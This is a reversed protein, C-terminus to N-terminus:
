HMAGYASKLQQLTPLLARCAADLEKLMALTDRQATVESLIARAEAESVTYGAQTLARKLEAAKQGAANAMGHAAMAPLHTATVLAAVTGIIKLMAGITLEPGAGAAGRVVRGVFFAVDEATVGSPLNTLVEKAASKALTAFLTPSRRRLDQLLKLVKPAQRFAEDVTQQNSKYFLGARACSLGLLLYWPVFIGSLIAFEVQAVTVWHSARSAGAGLASLYEDRIFAATGWEYLRDDIAYVVTSPSATILMRNGSWISGPKLEVPGMNSQVVVPKSSPLVKAVAAMAEKGSNILKPGQM